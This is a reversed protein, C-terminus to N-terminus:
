VRPESNAFHGGVDKKLEEVACPHQEVIVELAPRTDGGGPSTGVKRFPDFRVEPDVAAFFLRAVPAVRGDLSSDGTALLADGIPAGDALGFFQVVSLSQYSSRSKSHTPRVAHKLRHIM